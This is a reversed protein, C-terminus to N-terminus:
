EIIPKNINNKKNKNKNKQLKEKRKSFINYLVLLLHQKVIVIAIIKWKGM